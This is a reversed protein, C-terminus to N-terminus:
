EPLGLTQGRSREGFLDTDLEKVLGQELMFRLTINGVGEGSAWLIRGASDRMLKEGNRLRELYRDATKLTRKSVPKEEDM